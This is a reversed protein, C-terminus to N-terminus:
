FAFRLGFEIRRNNAPNAEAGFGGALRNSTGFLPSTIDGILPGVNNTNFLNRANISATLNYRHSTTGGGEGGGGGRGGGGGGRPGGGGPGHGGGGFGGGPPGGMGGDGGRAAGANREPGFGFTKSLRLNVSFFGPGEGYNRPIIQEGPKPNPDFMGILGTAKLDTAFAPRATNLLSDGYLDRSEYINFPRGTNAIIFPSLRIDWKTTVSGGLMVRHRTDISSRGYENSLDYQNAGFTAAGDTNSKAFNLFYGGFLSINRTAQNRVNIFLQNQNLIGTSEYQFIENSGGYPRVGTGKGTYNMPANIDRARLLHLGRTNTYNVAVTTNKPLQREVGFASQIVYPARLNKDVQWTSTGQLQLASIPLAKPYSATIAAPDSVIYNQQTVGNFREAQLSYSPDFRDYFIGFGARIVLKPRGSKSSGPAWAIGIRPALSRGDSINTQYEYRLGLSVTLNPRLRWDDQVFFGLDTQSLGSFPTGDSRTFQTPGGGLAAIQAAGLGNKQFLLTRRYRELSTVTQCGATQAIPDCVVGPVVPNNNGDLTPVFGGTFSFTGGFNSPALSNLDIARVRVGFKWAHRGSSYSTYNQLEYHNQVDTNYGVQAGGSNFAQSVNIAPLTNNGFGVNNIHQYQFRTENIAKAGLIQTDTLQATHFQNLENYGRDQLNFQGVGQDTLDNRTYTYRGTLSNSPTLQYDIRPSFTLRRQPTPVYGSIPVFIPTNLDGVTTASIIGDDNIERREFDLFFSSKKTLPGGVNGGYQRSQFPAANPTTLYPNRSNLHGDSINFFGQGRLKDTGPKTFIEIRGFGIRDYEASFPNSNIRVERISEKPPLRGGTFGDIYIQGGNPGASPGALAQLDSALDDPDDSLAQLDEAKLIIQGANQAPDTTVAPATTEQVTVQQTEVSVRLSINVSMPTSGLDVKVPSFQTLGPTTAVISYVGAPLGTFVYSGDAGSTVAKTVSRPGTATVKAGPIVAGSEDQITGRITSNSQAFALAALIACLALTKLTKYM